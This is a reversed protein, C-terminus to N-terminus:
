GPGPREAVGRRARRTRARPPRAPQRPRRGAAEVRSRGAREASHGQERLERCIGVIATSAAHTSAEPTCGGTWIAQQWEPDRIGAPYGTREDLLEFAYPILSTVIEIPKAHKVRKSAVARPTQRTPMQRSCHRLMSRASSLAPRQVGRVGAAAIRARMWAERQLDGSPVRGWTASELRLAWGVALAARRVAEASAGAARVEVLRDWLDGGGATGLRQSLMQSLPTREVAEPALRTRQETSDVSVRAQTVPLDFAEVPVGRRVAWRVAALEPSFDAYPYFLLGTGDARVAALAVPAELTEAGLWALWPQLEEPMEVLVLDPKLQDLLTPVATALM